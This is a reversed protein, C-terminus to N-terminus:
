RICNGKLIHNWIKLLRLGKLLHIKALLRRNTLLGSSLVTGSLWSTKDENVQNPVIRDVAANPFSFCDDFQSKEEETLKEYVKEKLFASGGIM